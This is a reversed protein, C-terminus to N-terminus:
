VDYIRVTEIDEPQVEVFTGDETRVIITGSDHQGYLIGMLWRNKALLTVGKGRPIRRDGLDAWPQIQGSRTRLAM